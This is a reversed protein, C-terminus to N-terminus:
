TARSVRHQAARGLLTMTQDFRDYDVYRRAASLQNRLEEEGQQIERQQPAHKEALWLGLVAMRLREALPVDDVMVETVLRLTHMVLQQLPSEEEQFPHTSVGRNHRLRCPPAVAFERVRHPLGAM